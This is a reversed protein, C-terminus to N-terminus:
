KGDPWATSSLYERVETGAKAGQTKEIYEAILTDVTNKWEDVLKNWEPIETEVIPAIKDADTSYPGYIDFDVQYGGYMSANTVTGVAGDLPGFPNTGGVRVVRDGVQFKDTSDPKQHHAEKNAQKAADQRENAARQAEQARKREADRRAVEDRAERLVSNGYDRFARGVALKAGLTLDFEDEGTASSHGKALIQDDENFLTAAIQKANHDVEFFIEVFSSDEVYTNADIM